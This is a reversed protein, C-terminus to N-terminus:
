LQERLSEVVGRAAKESRALVFITDDGALTAVVGPVRAEDIAVGVANACGTYTRVVVIGQALDLGTVFERFAAQLNERAASSGTGNVAEPPAYRYGGDGTPVKVLGLRKVDRSVTAQTVRIGVRALAEVLEAQTHIERGDVIALIAQERERKSM